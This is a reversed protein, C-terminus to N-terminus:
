RALPLIEAEEPEPHGAWTQPAFEPVLENLLAVASAADARSLIRDLRALHQSLAAWAIMAERAKIIRPHETAESPANILLEEILKEGKRLGIEEIAIDGDPNADDMVTLGTLEIMAKALDLIRVPQGMDLLLVEGGQALAGAQIVLQSAEPITMFYRTADRHTITVPGGAAIQQRFRPVVSGSSGLVNGFRVSVFSTVTQAQARAQVILECARKTAGMINTPRVAKDSSILVFKSTKVEEAALAAHLTGFINNRIGNLPNLEVIPVHKYAAAHFVTHPKWRGFLRRCQEQDATNVLEAFIETPLTERAIVESLEVDIEYLARESQDALILAQPRYKIIQRCLESGISGGAGTVLVIRGEINRSMLAPDPPIEDRGLLEEIQVERLESISVKDFAIESISPLVRIKVAPGCERIREIVARRASRKATPLAVFVEEITEVALIEELEDVHWIPKGDLLSGKFSDSEDVFGVADLSPEHRMSLALQQGAPGAGFILVRKAARLAAGSQAAIILSNAIALRAGAAWLYFLLPHIVALTRPIGHPTLLLLYSGILVSMAVCTRLLQLLTDRGSFRLVARYPRTLLIACILAALSLAEYQM